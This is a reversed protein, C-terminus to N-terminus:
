IRSKPPRQRRELARTLRNSEKPTWWKGDRAGLGQRALYKQVHRDGQVVHKRLEGPRPMDSQGIYNLWGVAVLLNRVVGPFSAGSVCRASRVYRLGADAATKRHRGSIRTGRPDDVDISLVERGTTVTLGESELKRENITFGAAELLCRAQSQLRLVCDVTRGSFALDDGYRTYSVQAQGAAKSLLIDTKRLCLNLASGSLPSGQPVSGGVVMLGCLVEAVSPTFGRELLAARLMDRTISPYADKLDLKAV